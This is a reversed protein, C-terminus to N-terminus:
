KTAQSHCEVLKGAVACLLGDVSFGDIGAERCGACFPGVARYGCGCGHHANCGEGARACCNCLHNGYGIHDLATDGGTAAADNRCAHCCCPDGKPCDRCDHCDCACDNCGCGPKACPNAAYDTCAGLVAGNEIRLAAKAVPDTWSVSGTVTLTGDIRRTIVYDTATGGSSIIAYSGMPSFQTASTSFTLGSLVSADQGLVFGTITASFPPNPQGYMRTADNVVVTLEAPNVTVLGAVYTLVYNASAALSGQSIPYTGVNSTSTASTALTGTLKDGGVLGSVVYTLAPVSGGYTMSQNDATVLLAAPTVALKGDTYAIVYNSGASLTNQGIVYNGVNEGAARSLAGSFVAASDGNVLGGYTYTLAPDATGYVKSKNDAVVTLTAPTIVLDNGTYVITYNGGASLTGQNIAYPGSAVTEGAVRSLAGGFVAASDGNALGSYGYTLAPDPAGYVKTEPNAAVDLLAKNITLTGPAYTIAYNSDAAGSAAITDTYTGANATAATASTVTAPTTLSAATDGNVFGAYSATLAPMTGGYTMSQNDATITLAAPGIVLKGAAYTIAYNSDVAGSATITDTYTGANATAPTASVLTPGTTLSAPTDGGVFGTYSATLAPMVGGYTMSQNDATIVLPAPTIVLDNGTYVIAYNGGASLTGQNIAYPGGAVTEGPVRALGGSFVTGTDGNVLGSYGYTLAPDPSGYVKSQANATVILPAKNITLAGPAYTIAYNPDAAGSATITDTYTGANATAPTASTVTPPTTLSAATDGNVFGAYSATLAPMTGGYTMSQNDATIVLPAPTIVLDAGVYTIAYNGGASLTGQNIAYPGGAVTEGPSRALGGTFVSGDDGNVLGGYTYTLAPDAAGYVKSQADATVILPAKNITLTGPLYSITYNPDVAGAATITNLYTGANATAATASTATPLTTLSTASDGHVFGSYSVTLAPMTGGYTMSQNDATIVLAAPNITLTGPAYTIAYNADVAGSATITGTYTGAPASAGTASVVTPQATLNTKTDGNVLGTASWTLTPLTGGYTMSKSDATILLPAPTITLDAGVYTVTYNAGASVTGQNIAYSGVNSGATRALAGTMIAATDGNVFGSPVYTLAPDASGYVKTKADATVLLPAPTIALNASHYTINYNGGASVTGQNITYNGVNSGSNRNLAGSMITATDGNVFGSPVYTLAPDATGYVKTKADAYVQLTAKNITLRGAVYSITYNPDYAGSAVLTGNYTGANSNAPTNSVVAPQTTLNASSEGSIFGSYTVTLAPMTGGYTMSKNAATITLAKPTITLHAGVYTIDYNGGASLTAQNIAYPGGLVTEGAVRTLAGTFVAATDGNVLGSYNYTLAPDSAGYIKSKDLATITLPAKNITLTGPAYSITYDSDVAGSATLTGVYTGANATASTGSHLAPATTLSAPTDGNVLGTYTATLAPMTGGYTMTQNDATILLPAPTISLAAGTYAITYNSNATLTGQNIAYTRGAHEGAARALAGSLVTAATDSFKLGSADVAYTFAPDTSGYVKTEPNATVKLIAPTITLHGVTYDITYNGGASLTGQNIAYPGGAVTEGADRTLGGSIVAATDGNVLGSYGYTLAPDSAGYVKTKDAAVIHLTAPTISFDKATFDIVYNDGATLTGLSIAYSGVDSGLARTLYGSFVSAKSDGNVLGSVSYDLTPEAAGYVKSLTVPTVGLVARDITLTGSAYSISYNPDAAGGATLTGAYTGANANADTGSHVSPLTAPASDWSALGSYSVTLTPMTGGYTMTQDDATILLPAKNITLTGSAYTITYNPDVAGSATITGAYTGAPSNAATASTVTPPTNLGSSLTAATDGNVLGYYSATLTPLGTAGYTIAKDDAKITLAAPTISLDASNFVIQYNPNATLTGQNIAYDGVNAGAARYLVGSLVSSATDSWQLGGVTYTLAPEASGYVKSLAIATITLPAPTITFDAGTFYITYDPGASLSGLHIAYSGVNEGADRELVGSFTPAPVGSGVNWTYTLTPDVSGYVKSLANATVGLLDTGTAVSLPAPDITLNAGVFTMAYNSNATLSGQRIAYVGVDEGADRTLAGSFVTAASDGNELGSYHYTLAPDPSGYEKWQSDATVTLPAPTIALNAGIYSITYNATATVTGQHIAYTGVNQGLDRTLSGSIVSADDGNVLGSPTYTLDPEAGGYVKTQADAAITLVAPNITLTGAAYSIAYNAASAGSATLTGHYTGADANAKTGSQVDPPTSLVSQDQGMVFGSYSVTLAPLSGDGYTMSKDDARITLPAKNITLTGPAYTITYNPDVAGSATITGAYTGADATAATGSALSPPTPLSAATDGNVLGAYSATLAPMSGGYTMSKSDATITLAAPTISFDAGAFAIAYNGNATLTGQNIAYTGVNSGLSRYLVGSLVTTATDSFAFGTADYTLVPEASGYVKSMPNATVTLTKPTIALYSGVYTVAYNSGASLTGQGIVYTTGANEGAVRSLAGTFVSDGDGGALASHSYTLAPDSSGYIKTQQNATITLPAPTITLDAGTFAITYNGGASLTGQDIAYPGGTVTEGAARGLAGSFVAASDGNVLGSYSYTLAPDSEGYTKTEVNATVSLTAPTISLTGSNFTLAYNGTAALSGQTIAYGGVGSTATAATTLAGALTDGNVLNGSTVAYSLSPNASGYIRGLNDATVTIPRATVSLTGSNFTLAYNGTAALSGQTIAYGGVGSTATAATALAGALTDGNVLNGSTVAYSLTPNADGYIRGLNDATVTIPRATVSLTGDTRSTIVYNAATGGSSTVAYSGVNSSPTAVTSFTLGSVVSANQGLVFGTITASFSPNADGYLRSAGNVAVALPAPNVTLIGDTNGVASIAYNAAQAGSLSVVREAYPGANLGASLAVASNSSDYLSVVATVDDGAAVGTLGAAGLTALTGYVSSADAVAYRLTTISRVLGTTSISAGSAYSVAGTGSGTNDARLIVDAGGTNTINANIEINRYASLTLSNASSWVVPADVFIDGNGGSGALTTEVTVNATSLNSVITAAQTADITYDDPDLLWSGAVGSVASTDIRAGAIDLSHGSTEITGGNGGAAGGRADARGAFRTADAVVTVNGGNGGAIASASLYTTADVVASHTASISINGGGQDGSVDVVAGKLTVDSGSIAVSGGSRGVATVTGSVVVAGDGADLVIKGGDRRASTATIAGGTSIVNSVLDSAARASLLVTAGSIKGNNVVLAEVPKGNADIARSVVNADLPFSVLGDGTFDLTFVNSAGLTVSGLRAAIVGDNRVAPAILGVMGDAAITGQNVIGANPNGAKDFRAKGSAIDQNAADSTTAILSGVNIKADPGFVIGDGNILVIRGNALLSGLIQSPSGGGIRNVALSDAGPQNFKTTEGAAINFSAWDIIVIKTQQDVELTNPASATVKAGGVVVSGGVPNGIGNQSTSVFGVLLALYVAREIWNLYLWRHDWQRLGAAVLVAMM